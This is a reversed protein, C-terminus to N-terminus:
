RAKLKIQCLITSIFILACGIIEHIALHQRLFVFALLSALPAELSMLITSITTDVTAQGYLQLSYAVATSFFGTYLIPILALRVSEFTTHEFFLAPLFSTLGAAVYQYFCLTMIDAKRVYREAFIIQLSFLLANSLLLLDALKVQGNYMSYLGLAAIILSFIKQKNIRKKYIFYNLIPIVLIYLATMFSVKGIDFYILGLQQVNSASGLILGLILGCIINYKRTLAKKNHLVIPLYLFSALLFRIANFSFVGIASLSLSQFVFAGAWIFAAGFLALKGRLM